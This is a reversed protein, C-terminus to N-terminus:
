VIHFSQRAALQSRFLQGGNATEKYLRRHLRIALSEDTKEGVKELKSECGRTRPHPM